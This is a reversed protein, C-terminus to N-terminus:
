PHVQEAVGLLRARRHGDVVLPERRGLDVQVAPVAEGDPDGVVHEPQQHHPGHVVLLTLHLPGCRRTRGLLLLCQGLDHRQDRDEPPEDHGRPHDQVPCRRVGYLDALLVEQQPRAPLRGGRPVAGPPLVATARLAGGGRRLRGGRRLLRRVAPRLRLRLLRRRRAAPEEGPHQLPGLLLPGASLTGGALRPDLPLRRALVRGLHGRLRLLGLRLLRLRLRRLGLPSRRRPPPRSPLLTRSASPLPALTSSARSAARPSSPALSCSTATSIPCSGRDPNRRMPPWSAITRTRRLSPPSSAGVVSSSSSCPSRAASNTSCSRSRSAIGPSASGLRTSPVMYRSTHPSSLSAIPRSM